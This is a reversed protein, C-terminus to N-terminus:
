AWVETASRANSLVVTGGITGGAQRILAVARALEDRTTRGGEIVLALPVESEAAAAASAFDIVNGALTVEAGDGNGPLAAPPLANRLVVAIDDARASGVPALVVR